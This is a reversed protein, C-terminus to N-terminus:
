PLQMPAVNFGDVALVPKAAGLDSKRVRVTIERKEGPLLSIYNDDFFVPLVEAGDQGKLLRLRVLFALGSGSNEVTVRAASENAANSVNMSAKVRAKPLDQLAAFDAFEALPTYYWETKSFDPVDPKSSLWYFNRSLLEGSSSFLQLDLFYTPTIGEPESVRFAKTVGDSAVDSVEEHTFREKMSTDFIKAVVKL